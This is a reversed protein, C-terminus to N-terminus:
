FPSWVINPLNCTNHCLFRIRIWTNNRQCQCLSLKALSFTENTIFLTLIWTSAVNHHCFNHSFPWFILRLSWLICIEAGFGTQGDRLFPLRLPSFTETPPSFTRGDPWILEVFSRLAPAINWWARPWRNKWNVFLFLRRSIPEPIRM